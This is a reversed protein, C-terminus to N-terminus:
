GPIPIGVAYLVDEREKVFGVKTAVAQSALNTYSTSWSTASPAELRRAALRSNMLSALM